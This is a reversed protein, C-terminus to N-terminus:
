SRIKLKEPLTKELQAYVDQDVKIGAADLALLAAGVVPEYRPRIIQARPYKAHVKAKITDILLPGKGKFVSGGLVVEVDTDELECRRIFTNAALAVEEAMRILLGRAPEDGADAAEFLLPVLGLRKPYPIQDHYLGLLLEEESNLNLAELVMGTLRTPEGRGDWARMILHIIGESLSHGGGWDGSIDGLAPLIQERGDKSRGAANFGAGCIVGVGWPRSLGSRMAAMTDNKVVVKRAMGLEEMASQLLAFDEELDAGALCTCALDVPISDAALGSLASRVAKEVEGAAAKIGRNQHNGCGGAGFGLVAGTEDMVLAFTKSAGGDVGIVLTM